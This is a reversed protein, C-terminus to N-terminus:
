VLRATARPGHDTTRPQPEAVSSPGRVVSAHGFFYRALSQALETKGVGTPGCFLLVGVPRSPDNMGAKFTMVLDAAAACAEPQDIVQERFAALVADRELLLEDRLFLEPLGTRDRFSTVADAPA